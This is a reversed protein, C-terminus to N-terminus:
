SAMGLDSGGQSSRHKCTCSPSMLLSFWLVLAAGEETKGGGNAASSFRLLVRGEKGGRKWEGQAPGLPPGVRGHLCGLCSSPSGRGTCAVNLLSFLLVLVKCEHTQGPNWHPELNRFLHNISISTDCLCRLIVALTHPVYMCVTCASREKFRFFFCFISDGTFLPVRCQRLYPTASYM